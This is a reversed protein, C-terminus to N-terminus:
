HSTAFAVKTFKARLAAEYVEILSAYKVNRGPSIVIQVKDPPNGSAEYQEKLATLQATLSVADSVQIQGARAIFRGDPLQDVRIDLPEDPIFGEPPPAGAGGTEKFPLNSTLYHEAGGFSGVLMLFILIVLVVDVLPTM